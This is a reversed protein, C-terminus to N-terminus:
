NLPLNRALSALFIYINPEYKADVETDDACGLYVAGKNDFDFEYAGFWLPGNLCRVGLTTQQQCLLTKKM